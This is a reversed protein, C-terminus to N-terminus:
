KCKRKFRYVVIGDIRYQVPETRRTLYAKRKTYISYVGRADLDAGRAGTVGEQHLVTAISPFTMVQRDRMEVVRDALAERDEPYRNPLLRSTTLVLSFALDGPNELTDDLFIVDDQRDPDDPARVWDGGGLM